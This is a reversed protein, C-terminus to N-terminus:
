KVLKKNILQVIEKQQKIPIGISDLPIKKSSNKTRIFGNSWNSNMKIEVIDQYIYLTNSQNEKLLTLGENDLKLVPTEIQKLLYLGKTFLFTIPVLVLWLYQNIAYAATFFVGLLLLAITFYLKPNEKKSYILNM